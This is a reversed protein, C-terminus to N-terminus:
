VKCVAYGILAAVSYAFIAVLSGAIFDYENGKRKYKKDFYVIIKGVWVTPHAFNPYEYFADIIISIILLM